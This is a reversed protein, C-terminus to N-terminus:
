SNFVKDWLAQIEDETYNMILKKDLKADLAEKVVKNQVPNTSTSSLADDVTIATGYTNVVGVIEWQEGNYVFDVVAGAGWYQSEPLAVGHWRIDKAGMSEVNLKPLSATNSNVFKVTIKEGIEINGNGDDRIIATTLNVIKVATDAETSCTGYRIGLAELRTVNYSLEGFLTSYNIIRDIDFRLPKENVGPMWPNLFPTYLGIEKKITSGWLNTGTIYIIKSPDTLSITLTVTSQKNPFIGELDSESVYGHCGSAGEFWELDIRDIVGNGDIDYLNFTDGSPIISTGNIHDLVKYYENYTPPLYMQKTTTFTGTMTIDQSFLNDIDVRNAKIKITEPSQEIASMVGDKSVKLAINNANQTISSEAASVRGKVSDLDSVTESVTTKIGNVNAEITTQKDVIQNIDENIVKQTSTMSKYIATLAQSNNNGIKNELASTAADLKQSIENSIYSDSNFSATQATQGPCTLTCNMGGGFTMTQSMILVKHYIGDGDPVTVIDGAQFAPNGRYKLKVPTYAMSQMVSQVADVAKEYIFPNSYEVEVNEAGIMNSRLSYVTPNITTTVTEGAKATTKSTAITGNGDTATSIAFPGNANQRFSATVTVDSDPQVFTYGGEGNKTLTVENGNAIKATLTALEYGNNAGVSLTVTDGELVNSSPTAVVYGDNGTIVNVTYKEVEGKVKFNVVLTKNGLKTMGNLYQMKREISMGTDNYWVFELKGNRNFRANKGCCGAAHGFANRFSMKPPKRRVIVDPYSSPAIFKVGSKAVLENVVAEITTPYELESEYEGTLNYMGDACTLKLTRFDNSTDFNTVGFEGLPSWEITGDPLTLGSEPKVLLGNYDMPEADRITLNLSASNATGVSIGNNDSISETFSINTVSGQSLLTGNITVRHVMYRSSSSIEQLYKDSVSLM